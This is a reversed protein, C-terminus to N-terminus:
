RWHRMDTEFDGPEEREPRRLAKQRKKRFLKGSAWEEGLNILALMSLSFFLLLIPHPM